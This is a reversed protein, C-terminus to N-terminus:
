YREKEEELWAREQLEDNWCMERYNKGYREKVDEASIVNTYSTNNVFYDREKKSEFVRVATGYDLIGQEAYYHKKM